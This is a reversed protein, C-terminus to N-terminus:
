HLIYVTKQIQFNMTMGTCRSMGYEKFQGEVDKQGPWLKNGTKGRREQAWSCHSGTSPAPPMGTRLFGGDLLPWVLIWRIITCFHHTHHVLLPFLKNQRIFHWLSPAKLLLFKNKRLELDLHWCPLNWESADERLKYAAAMENHAWMVLEKHVHPSLFLALEKPERGILVGTRHPRPGM